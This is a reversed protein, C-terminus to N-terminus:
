SEDSRNIFGPDRGVSGNTNSTFRNLWGDPPPQRSPVVSQRKEGLTAPARGNSHVTFKMCEVTVWFVRL